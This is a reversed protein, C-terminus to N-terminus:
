LPPIWERIEEQVPDYIVLAISYQKIIQQGLVHQLIDQYAAQPVAVLILNSFLQLHMWLEIMIFMLAHYFLQGVSLMSRM